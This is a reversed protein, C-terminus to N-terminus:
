RRGAMSPADDLGADLDGALIRPREAAPRASRHPRLDLRGQRDHGAAGFVGQAVIRWRWLSSPHLTASVEDARLIPELSFQPDDHVSLQSLNFGPRTILRKAIASMPLPSGFYLLNAAAYVPVAIVGEILCGWLAAVWEPRNESWFLVKEGKGIGATRLRGAFVGAARVVDAYRYSRTRYGDDHVLFEGANREFEAFFDLLTQHV